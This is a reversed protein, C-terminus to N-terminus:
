GSFRLFHNQSSFEYSVQELVISALKKTSIYSLLFLAFKKASIGNIHM